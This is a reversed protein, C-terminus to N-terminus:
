FNSYKSPRFNGRPAAARHVPASGAITRTATSVTRRCTIQYKIFGAFFGNPKAPIPTGAPHQAFSATNDIVLCSSRRKDQFLRQLHPILECIDQNHHTYIVSQGAQQDQRAGLPLDRNLHIRAPRCQPYPAPSQHLREPLATKLSQAVCSGCQQRQCQPHLTQKFIMASCDRFFQQFYQKSINVQCADAEQDQRRLCLHGLGFRHVLFVLHPAHRNAQDHHIQPWFFHQLSM